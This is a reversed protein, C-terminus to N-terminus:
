GAMAEKENRHAAWAEGRLWPLSAGALMLLRSTPERDGSFFEELVIVMVLAARTTRVGEAPLADAYSVERALEIFRDEVTFGFHKNPRTITEETFGILDTLIESLPRM